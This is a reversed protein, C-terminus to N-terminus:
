RRKVCVIGTEDCSLDEQLRGCSRSMGWSDRPEGARGAGKAARYQARLGADIEAVEGVRERLDAELEGPLRQLDKLLRPAHIM